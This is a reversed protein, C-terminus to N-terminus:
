ALEGALQWLQMDGNWEFRFRRTSTVLQLVVDAVYWGARPVFVAAEVSKVLGDEIMWALAEKVYDQLRERTKPVQKERMLLWLRSGFSEPAIRDIPNSQSYADAWWGRRDAAAPVEHAQALRDCLLSLMVATALTDERAFDATAADISLDLGALAPSYQLAFDM